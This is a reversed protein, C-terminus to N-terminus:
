PTIRDSATPPLLRSLHWYYYPTLLLMLADFPLSVYPSGTLFYFVIGMSGPVMVFAAALIALRFHSAGKESVQHLVRANLPVSLLAYPLGLGLLLWVIPGSVIGEIEADVELFGVEPAVLWVFLATYFLCLSLYLLTFRNL